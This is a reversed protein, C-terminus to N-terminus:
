PEPTGQGPYFGDGPTEIIGPHSTEEPRRGIFGVRGSALGQKGLGFGQDNGQLGPGEQEVLGGQVDHGPAEAQRSAEAQVIGAEMAEAM